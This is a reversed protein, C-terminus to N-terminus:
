PRPKKEDSVPLFLTFTTGIGITSEVQISGGHAELIHKVIALGLGTGGMERSRAKDVRYFREFLRPISKTPIGIGTDIVRVQVGNDQTVAEVRVEGKLTYKIANEILNIFLQDMMDEDAMIVPLPTPILARLALDKESAQPYLISVVKTIIQELHLPKKKIEEEKGEIQSLNLLDSILRTLRDSEVNIIGLFRKSLEPEEMAGDLLTEVFGKISTLPTRLEHSVNAVFETRIKELKRLETIDRLIAVVGIIEDGAKTLPTLHIKLKRHTPINITLEQESDKGEALTKVMVKELQNNHLGELIDRGVIEKEKVAFIEEAAPNILIVRLNKDLAIVGDAMGTLIARLKNKEERIEELNQSLRSAMYNLSSSLEAIEDHSTVTVKYELNGQALSKAGEAMAKLPQSLSRALPAALAISLLFVMTFVTAISFYLERLIKDLKAMAIAVRVAGQVSGQHMVPVAVYLMSTHLTHSTRIDQGTQGELAKKVEPRNRHNELRKDPVESDALVDGRNDIITVRAKINAAAEKVQLKYYEPDTNDEINLAGAILKAEALFSNQFNAKTNASIKDSLFFGLIALSILSVACYTFILKSYLSRFM